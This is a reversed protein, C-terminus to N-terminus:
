KSTTIFEYGPVRVHLPSLVGCFKQVFKLDEATDVVFRREDGEKREPDVNQVCFVENPSLLRYLHATTHELEDRRCHEELELFRKANVIEVSVGYPFSRRWINSVLSFRSILHEHEAILDPDIFPTDGNARVFYSADERIIVEKTRDVLNENSGSVVPIGMSSCWERIPDNRQDIGTAVIIRGQFRKELRRVVVEILPTGNIECFPKGPLRTSTMRAYLIVPNRM